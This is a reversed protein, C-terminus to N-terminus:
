HGDTADHFADKLSDGAKKVNAKTQEARGENELDEDDTAKGTAEKGKGLAEEASHKAKDSMSM